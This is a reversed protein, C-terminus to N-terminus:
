KKDEEDQLLEEGIKEYLLSSNKEKIYEYPGTNIDKTTFQYAELSSNTEKHQWYKENPSHVVSLPKDLSLTISLVIPLIM